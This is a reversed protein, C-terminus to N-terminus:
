KGTRRPKEFGIYTMVPKENGMPPTYFLGIYADRIAEDYEEPLLFVASSLRAVSRGSERIEYIHM